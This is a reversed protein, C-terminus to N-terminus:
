SRGIAQYQTLAVGHVHSEVLPMLGLEAARREAIEANTLAGALLAPVELQRASLCRHTGLVTRAERLHQIQAHKRANRCQPTRTPNSSTRM